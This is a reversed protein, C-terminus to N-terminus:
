FPHNPPVRPVGMKPFRWTLPHVDNIAYHQGDLSSGPAPELNIMASINCSLKGFWGLRHHLKVQFTPKWALCISFFHPWFVTEHGTQTRYINPFGFLPMYLNQSIGWMSEPTKFNQSVGWVQQKKVESICLIMAFIAVEQHLEIPWTGIWRRYILLQHKGNQGGLWTSMRM